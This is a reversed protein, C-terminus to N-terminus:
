RNDAKKCCVIPSSSETGSSRLISNVPTFGSSTIQRGVPCPSETGSSSFSLPFTARRKRLLSTPSHCNVCITSQLPPSVISDFAPHLTYTPFVCRTSEMDDHFDCSICFSACLCTLFAFLRRTFHRRSCWSWFLHQTILCFFLLGRLSSFLSLSGLGICSVVLCCCMVNHAGLFISDLQATICSRFSAFWCPTLQFAVFIWSWCVLCGLLSVHRQSCWSSYFRAPGHRLLSFLCVSVGSSWVVVCLATFVLVLISNLQAAVCPGSSVFLM